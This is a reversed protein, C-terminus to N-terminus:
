RTDEVYVEDIEFELHGSIYPGGEVRFIVKNYDDLNEILSQAIADLIASEFSAGVDKLPPKDSYFSVIVTNGETTVSEVGILISRDAMSDVVTDVILQPTIEEDAPVLAYVPDLDASSNVVYIMLEVNQTPQIVTPAPNDTDPTQNNGGTIISSSLVNDNETRSIETQNIENNKSNNKGDDIDNNDANNEVSNYQEENNKYVKLRVNSCGNFLFIVSLILILVFYKNRRKMSVEKGYFGIFATTQYL